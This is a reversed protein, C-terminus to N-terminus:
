PAGQRLRGRLAAHLRRPLARDDAGAQVANHCGEATQCHVAVRGGVAHVAEVAATLVDVPVAPDDPLTEAEGVWLGHALCEFRELRFRQHGRCHIGLLGPRPRDLREIRALTGVTHFAEPAAAGDPARRVEEGETLCVVGFPSGERWARQVMDLYRVEFIQLPLHGGPFLVTNLPFLPLLRTDM